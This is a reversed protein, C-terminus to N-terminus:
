GTTGDVHVINWIGLTAQDSDEISLFSKKRSFPGRTGKKEGAIDNLTDSRM